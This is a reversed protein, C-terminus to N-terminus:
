APPLASAGAREAHEAYFRGRVEYAEVTSSTKVLGERQFWAALTAVLLKVGATRLVPCSRDVKLVWEDGDAKALLLHATQNLRGEVLVYRVLLVDRSSNLYSEIFKVHLDEEPISFRLAPPEQWARILDLVGNLKV